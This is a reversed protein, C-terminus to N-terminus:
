LDHEIETNFVIHWRRDHEGVRPRRPDLCTYPADAVVMELPALEISLDLEISMFAILFGARQTIALPYQAAALALAEGDLAGEQLLDGIVTAVNGIGSGLAPSEVLDLVVVSPTAVTVRGTPVNLVVTPRTGADTRRIFELRQQGIRRDRLLASTVVQLVMPVQHSAGHLRAASLLGVYYPHGLHRMLPDIFHLPPPAGAARYEPPVPVWGGKTVSVMKRADRARQLSVPVVSPDVGVLESVEETTAFYRGRAILWDALGSPNVTAIAM